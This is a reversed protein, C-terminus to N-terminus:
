QNLYEQYATEVAKGREGAGPQINLLREGAKTRKYPLEAKQLTFPNVGDYDKILLRDKEKDYTFVWEFPMSGYAFRECCINGSLQNEAQEATYIGVYMQVPYTAKKMVARFTGDESFNFFVEAPVGDKETSARWDGYLKACATCIQKAQLIPHVFVDSAKTMAFAEGSLFPQGKSLELKGNDWKTLTTKYGAGWYDGEFSFGSFPYLMVEFDIRKGEANNKMSLIELEAGAFDYMGSYELYFQGDICSIEFYRQESEDDPQGYFYLGCVENRFTDSAAAFAKPSLASVALASSAFFLAMFVFLLSKKMIKM